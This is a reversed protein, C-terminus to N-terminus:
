AEAMDKKGRGLRVQFKYAVALASRERADM